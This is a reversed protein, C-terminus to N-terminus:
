SSLMISSHHHFIKWEGNEKSFVFTFRAPVENKKNKQQWSFVYEGTIFVIGNQEYILKDSIQVEFNTKGGGFLASFYNAIQIPTLHPKNAFTGLLVATEHYLSLMANADMNKNISCWIDLCDSLEKYIDHKYQESLIKM